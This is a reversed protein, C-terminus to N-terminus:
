VKNDNAFPKLYSRDLYKSLDVKRQEQKRQEKATKRKWVSLKDM